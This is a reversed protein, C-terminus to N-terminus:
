LVFVVYYSPPQLHKFFLSFFLFNCARSIFLFQSCPFFFILSSYIVFCFEVTLVCCSLFCYAFGPSIESRYSNTHPYNLTIKCVRHLHNKISFFCFMSIRITRRRILSYFFPPCFLSPRKVSIFSCIFFSFVLSPHLPSFSSFCFRFWVCFRQLIGNCHM